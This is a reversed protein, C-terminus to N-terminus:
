GAAVLKAVAAARHEPALHAYRLTMKIDAHGLLERVTNLDVGAQVLKSAFTHRLDHVRFGAIPTGIVSTLLNKWATKIDVLRGGDEGPFVYGDAPDPQWAKLVDAVTKNLPVYRTKSSKSTEGRVTLLAGTLDVDRWTLGCAEGFRLGTHLLMIVLPTLVDTYMGLEPWLEYGRQARWVNASVRAQRREEDRAALAARLRTEEDPSLYRLRGIADVRALKLGALPHRDLHRWEVAKALCAKLAALVRNATAPSRGRKLYANRWKEIAFPTLDALLTNLFDKFRGELMKITDDGSTRNARVWPAYSDTIFKGLAIRRKAEQAQRKKAAIPDDGGSDEGLRERALKRAKLPPIVDARGITFWRGRGLRVLWSHHGSPRVRLVLGRQESDALDYSGPKLSDLLAQTIKTRM